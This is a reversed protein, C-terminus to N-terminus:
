SKAATAHSREIFELRNGFPDCTFFRESGEIPAEDRIVIGAAKLAARLRALNDVLLAPHAKRAPSFHPDVGIHLKLGGSEFWCGQPSLNSPKPVERMGLLGVFFARAADEGGEPIALQVHDLGIIVM